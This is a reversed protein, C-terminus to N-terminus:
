KLLTYAQTEQKKAPDDWVLLAQNGNNDRYFEYFWESVNGNKSPENQGECTARQIQMKYKGGTMLTYKRYIKSERCGDPQSVEMLSEGVYMGNKLTPKSFTVTTLRDLEESYRQWKGLTLKDAVARLQDNGTGGVPNPILQSVDIKRNEAATTPPKYNNKNNSAAAANNAGQETRYFTRKNGENNTFSLTETNPDYFYNEWWLHNSGAETLKLKNNNEVSYTIPGGKSYGDMLMTIQGQLTGNVMQPQSFIYKINAGHDNFYWDGVMDFNSVSSASQSSNYDTSNENNSNEDNQVPKNEQTTTKDEDTKKSLYKYAFISGLIVAPVLIILLIIMGWNTKKLQAQQM